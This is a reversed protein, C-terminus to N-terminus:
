AKRNLLSFIKDMIRIYIYYSGFNITQRFQDLLLLGFIKRYPSLLNKYNFEHNDIPFIKNLIYLKSEPPKIKKYVFDPIGEDLWYQFIRLFAYIITTANWKRATEILKNWDPKWNKIIYYADILAHPEIIWQRYGHIALHLLSDVSNFIRVNKKNYAPSVISRNWLQKYDISFMYPTTFQRHPEIGFQIKGKSVYTSEINNIDTYPRDPYINLRDAITSLIDCIQKYNEPKVLFDIDVGLRPIEAPYLTDTFAAGKLLIIDIYEPLHKNIFQKLWHKQTIDSAIYQNMKNQATQQIKLPLKKFLEAKELNSVILPFLRTFSSDQAKIFIEVDNIWNYKLALDIKGASILLLSKNKQKNM